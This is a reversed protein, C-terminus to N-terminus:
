SRIPLDRCNRSPKRPKRSQLAARRRQSPAYRATPIACNRSNQSDTASYIRRAAFARVATQLAAPCNRSNQSDTASYIRRSTFAGAATPPYRATAAPTRLARHPNRLKPFEPFQNCLLDLPRHASRGGRPPCRATAARPVVRASNKRKGFDREGSFASAHLQGPLDRMPASPRPSRASSRRKRASRSSAFWRRRLASHPQWLPTASVSGVASWPRRSARAVREKAEPLRRHLGGNACHERRGHACRDERGGRRAFLSREAPIRGFLGRREGDRKRARLRGPRAGHAM